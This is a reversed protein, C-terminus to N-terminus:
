GLSPVTNFFHYLKEELDYVGLETDCNKCHVPFFIEYDKPHNTEYDVEYDTTSKDEEPSKQFTTLETIFKTTKAIPLIKQVNNKDKGENGFKLTTTCDVRCNQVQMARYQNEYECHRQCDYCVQVFCYPCNLVTESDRDMKKEKNIWDELKNDQLPDYLNEDFPKENKINYELEYMINEENDSDNNAPKSNKELPKPAEGVTSKDKLLEKATLGGYEAILDDEEKELRAINEKIVKNSYDLIVKNFISDTNAKPDPNWDDV